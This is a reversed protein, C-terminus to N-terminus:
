HWWGCLGQLPRPVRSTGPKLRTYQIKPYFFLVVPKGLLQELQVPTGNQDPLTFHPAMEGVNLTNMEVRTQTM